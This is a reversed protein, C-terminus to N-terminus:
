NGEVARKVLIEHGRRLAQVMTEAPMAGSFLGYGDLFFSPVGSVGSERAAQDAQRMANDALDGALFAEVASRDLGVEAACDALVGHDGVDRGETFYAQFLREVMEPQKGSRDAFWVLRHADMTNPTRTMLDTRFQLGVAAAADSTRQDLEKSKELSGFKWTRYAARDRGEPPMDPNLQFPNWHVSFHLGEQALTALARELQRKGIYCWPCIVDSVVDIRTGPPTDRTVAADQTTDDM